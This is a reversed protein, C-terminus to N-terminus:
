FVIIRKFYLLFIDLIGEDKFNNIIKETRIFWTPYIECLLASSDFVSQSM